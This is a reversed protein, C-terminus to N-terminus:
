PQPLEGDPLALGLGCPDPYDPSLQSQAGDLGYGGVRLRRCLGADRSGTGPHGRAARAAQPAPAPVPHLRATYPQHSQHTCADRGGTPVTADGSWSLMAADWLPRAARQWDTARGLHPVAALVYWCGCGPPALSPDTATPRHLYLLFDGALRKHIFIDDLLGCYRPGLLIEHHAVHDYRRDTGFYLVFLSMSYRLGRIRRDSNRRRFRAPVLKLYTYAVDANSVVADAALTEGGAMRVGAARGIAENM